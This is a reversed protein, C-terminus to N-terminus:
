KATSNVKLLEVEHETNWSIGKGGNGLKDMLPGSHPSGNTSTRSLRARGGHRKAHDQRTRTECESTKWDDVDTPQAMEGPTDHLIPVLVIDKEM